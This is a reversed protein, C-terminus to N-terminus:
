IAQEELESIAQGAVTVADQLKARQAQQEALEAASAFRDVPPQFNSLAFRAEGYQRHLAPLQAEIAGAENAKADAIARQTRYAAKSGEWKDALEATRTQQVITLFGAIDRGVALARDRLEAHQAQLAIDLGNVNLSLVAQIYDQM